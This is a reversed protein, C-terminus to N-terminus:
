VRRGGVEGERTGGDNEDHMCWGGVKSAGGLRTVIQGLWTTMGV